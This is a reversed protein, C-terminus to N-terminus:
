EEEPGRMRYGVGRENVIWAPNAPDEGLKRRLRKVVGRAPENDGDAGNGRVQHLLSAHTVVRGASVSLVRLLEYKNPTMHVARGAVAVRHREYDISLVGLVFPDAGARRRRAERNAMAPMRTKPDLVM